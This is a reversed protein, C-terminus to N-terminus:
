RCCAEWLAKLIAWTTRGAVHWALMATMFGAVRGLSIPAAFADWFQNWGNSFNSM